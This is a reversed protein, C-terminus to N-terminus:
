SSKPAFDINRSQPRHPARAARRKARVDAAITAPWRPMRSHLVFLSCALAARYAPSIHRMNQSAYEQDFHRIEGYNRIAPLPEPM